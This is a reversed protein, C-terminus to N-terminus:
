GLQSGYRRAQFDEGTEVQPEVEGVMDIQFQGAVSNAEAWDYSSDAQQAWVILEQIQLARAMPLPLRAESHYPGSM